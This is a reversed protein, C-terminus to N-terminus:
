SVMAMVNRTFYCYEVLSRSIFDAQTSVGIRIPEVGMDNGEGEFNKFSCYQVKNYGPNNNDVLISLINQDALNLRNEFNCYTVRNYQGEERIRLYKYSRYARINIQTFHCHSGYISFVDSTGVDGGIYQFGQITIYDSSVKVKSNGNFITQGLEEAAIFLHNKTINMYIDSFTGSEWLISDNMAASSQASNFESQSSVKFVEANVTQTLFICLISLYILHTKQM